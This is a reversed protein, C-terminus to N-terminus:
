IGGGDRNTLHWGPEAHARLGRFPLNQFDFSGHTVMAPGVVNELWLRGCEWCRCVDARGTLSELVTREVAKAPHVCKNM